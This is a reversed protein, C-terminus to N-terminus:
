ELTKLIEDIKWLKVIKRAPKFDKVNATIIGCNLAIATALVPRDPRHKIVSANEMYNEYIERGIWTIPLYSITSEAKETSFGLERVLVRKLEEKVIDPSFLVIRKEIAANLLRSAKSEPNYFSIFYVNTDAVVRLLNLPNM